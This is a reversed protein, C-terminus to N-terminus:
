SPRVRKVDKSLGQFNDQNVSAYEYFGKRHFKCARTAKGLKGEFMNTKMNIPTGDSKFFYTNFDPPPVDSKKFGSEM